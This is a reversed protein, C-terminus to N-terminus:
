RGSPFVPAGGPREGAQDLWAAHLSTDLTGTDLRRVLEDLPVEGELYIFENGRQYNDLLDWGRRRREVRPKVPLDLGLHTDALLVIQIKANLAMSM